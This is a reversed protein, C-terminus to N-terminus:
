PMNQLLVFREFQDVYQKHMPGGLPCLMFLSGFLELHVCVKYDTEYEGTVLELFLTRTICSLSLGFLQESEKEKNECSDIQKSLTVAWPCFCRTPFAVCFM